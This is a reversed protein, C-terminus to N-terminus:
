TYTHTTSDIVLKNPLNLSNYSINSIKKNLYKTMAGNKNYAYGPNTASGKKFDNSEALTITTASDTVNTLQNGTYDLALNDVLRYTGLTTKGYRQLTEISGHKDYTYTTNYKESTTAGEYISTLRSLSDYGYTYKRISNDM